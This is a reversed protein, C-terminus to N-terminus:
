FGFLAFWVRVRKFTEIVLSVILSIRFFAGEPLVAEVLFPVGFLVGFELL